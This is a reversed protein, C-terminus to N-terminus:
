LKEFYEEDVHVHICKRRREVWQRYVEGFWDKDYKIIASRMVM